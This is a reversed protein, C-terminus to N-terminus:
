GVADARRVAGRAARSVPEELPQRARGGPLRREPREPRLEDRKVRAPSTGTATRGAEAVELRSMNRGSGAADVKLVRRLILDVIFGVAAATVIALLMALLPQDHLWQGAVVGFLASYTAWALGALMSLPVFRRAPFGSAGATMNVAIRGVPIYRAAFILLAGRRDLGRRAWDLAAAVRRTRMWGFRTTGLMRGLLYATNDGIVAGAAAIPILLWLTPEGTAVAVTAAGVVVTESPVPPFFGDVVCVVFVVLYIWPSAALDTVLGTLLTLLDM